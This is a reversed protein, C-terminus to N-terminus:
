TFQDLYQCFRETLSEWLLQKLTAIVLEEQLADQVLGEILFFEASIYHELLNNWTSAFDRM